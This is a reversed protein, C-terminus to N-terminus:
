NFGTHENEYDNFSSNELKELSKRKHFIGRTAEPQSLYDSVDSLRASQVKLVDYLSHIRTDVSKSKSGLFNTIKWLYQFITFLGVIVGILVALESYNVKM